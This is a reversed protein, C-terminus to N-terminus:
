FSPILKVVEDTFQMIKAENVVKLAKVFAKRTLSILTTKSFYSATVFSYKSNKHLTPDQILLSQKFVM